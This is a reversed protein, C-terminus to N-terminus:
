QRRPDRSAIGPEAPYPSLPQKGHSEVDSISPMISVFPCARDRAPVHTGRRESISAAINWALCWSRKMMTAPGGACQSLLPDDPLPGHYRNVLPVRANGQSDGAIEAQALIRRSGRDPYRQLNRCRIGVCGDRQNNGDCVRTKSSRHPVTLNSIIRRQEAVAGPRRIIDARV